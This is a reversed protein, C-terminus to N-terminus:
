SSNDCRETADRIADTVGKLNFTDITTTGRSSQGTVVAKAGGRLANVLKKDQDPSLTWAWEGETFMEFGSAGIQVSVTSGDKFPYGSSYSVENVIGESKLTTIYMNIEGRRVQKPNGANDRAETLEPKSAVFCSLKDESAFVSWNDYLAIRPFQEQATVSGTTLITVLGVTVGITKLM